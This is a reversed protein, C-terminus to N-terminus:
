FARIIVCDRPDYQKGLAGGRPPTIRGVGGWLILPTTTQRKKKKPHKKQNTKTPAQTKKKTNTPPPAADGIPMEIRRVPAPDPDTAPEPARGKLIAPVLLVVVVVLVLAGVLRERVRAEM